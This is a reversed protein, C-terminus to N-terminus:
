QTSDYIQPGSFSFMPYINNLNQSSPSGFSWSPFSSQISSIGEFGTRFLQFSRGHESFLFPSQSFYSEDRKYNEIIYNNMHIYTLTKSLFYSGTIRINLTQLVAKCVMMVMTFMANKNEYKMRQTNRLVRISGRKETRSCMVLFSILTICTSTCRLKWITGHLPSSVELPSNLSSVCTYAFTNRTSFGSAHIFEGGRRM